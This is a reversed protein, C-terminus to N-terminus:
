GRAEGVWGLAGGFAQLSLADPDDGWALFAACCEEVEERTAWGQGVIVDLIAPSRWIRVTAGAFRRTGEPTGFSEATAHGEVRAFGAERLVRRAHRGQDPNAGNHRLARAFLEWGRTLAPSSPMFILTAIDADGIAVLGGPKLVRRLERLARLPESLHFLLAHAVAVDFAADPFPLAYADGVEFRANALGRAVTAATADAVQSADRDLGVVEGPAVQEALDLTISGVGCGCDLLRLGPRLHPLLFPFRDAARRIGTYRRQAEPDALSYTERAAAVRNTRGEVM